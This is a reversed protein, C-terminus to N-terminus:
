IADRAAGGNYDRCMGFVKVHLKCAHFSELMCPFTLLPEARSLNSPGTSFAAVSIISRGM